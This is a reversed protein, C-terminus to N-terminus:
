FYSKNPVLMEQLGFGWLDKNPVRSLGPQVNLPKKQCSLLKRTRLLGTEDPLQCSKRNLAVTRLEKM